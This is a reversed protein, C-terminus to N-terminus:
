ASPPSSQLEAELNSLTKATPLRTPHDMGLVKRQGSLCTRLLRVAGVRDGQAALTFALNGISLLADSHEEGLVRTM